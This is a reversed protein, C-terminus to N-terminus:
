CKRMNVTPVLHPLHDPQDSFILVSSSANLNLIEGSSEVSKSSMIFAFKYVHYIAKDFLGKLVM